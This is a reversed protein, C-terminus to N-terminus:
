KTVIQSVQSYAQFIVIRIKDLTVKEMRWVSLLKEVPTESKGALGLLGALGPLPCTEPHRLFTVM